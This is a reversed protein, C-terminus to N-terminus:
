THTHPPQGGAAKCYQHYVKMPVGGETSTEKRVLQDGGDATPFLLIVAATQHKHSLYM